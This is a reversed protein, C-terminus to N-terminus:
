IELLNSTEAANRNPSFRLCELSLRTAPNLVTDSQNLHVKDTIRRARQQHRANHSSLPMCRCIHSDIYISINLTRSTSGRQCRTAGDTRRPRVCCYRSASQEMDLVLWLLRDTEQLQVSRSASMSSILSHHDCVDDLCCTLCGACIQHLWTLLRSRYVITMMKYQVGEAAKTEALPFQRTHRHHPRFTAPWRHIM